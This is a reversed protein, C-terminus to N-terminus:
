QKLRVGYFSMSKKLNSTMVKQMTGVNTINTEYM